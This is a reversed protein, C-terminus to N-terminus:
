PPRRARPREYLHRHCDDRDPHRLPDDVVHEGHLEEAATQHEADEQEAPQDGPGPGRDPNGPEGATQNRDGRHTQQAVQRPLPVHEDARGCRDARPYAASRMRGAGAEPAAPHAAEVRSRLDQVVRDPCADAGGRYRLHAAARSAQPVVCRAPERAFGPTWRCHGAGDEVEGRQGLHDRGRRQRHAVHIGAQGRELQLNRRREPGPSPRIPVHHCHAIQQLVRGAEGRMQEEVAIVDAARLEFGGDAAQRQLVRRAGTRDVAIEAEDQEPEDQRVAVGRSRAEGGLEVLDHGPAAPSLDAEVRRGCPAGPRRRRLQIEPAPSRQDALDVILVGPCQAARRPVRSEEAGGVRYAPERAVDQGAEEAVAPERRRLGEVGEAGPRRHGAARTSQAPVGHQRGRRTPGAQRRFRDAVGPEGPRRQPDVRGGVAVDDQQGVPYM